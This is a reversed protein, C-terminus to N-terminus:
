SSLKLYRFHSWLTLVTRNLPVTGGSDDYSMYSGDFFSDVSSSKMERGLSRDKAHSIEGLQKESWPGLSGVVWRGLSGVVWRSAEMEDDPAPLIIQVLAQLPMAVAENPHLVGPGQASRGCIVFPSAVPPQDLKFLSGLRITELPRFSTRLLWM